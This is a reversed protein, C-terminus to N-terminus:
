KPGPIERFPRAEKYSLTTDSGVAESGRAAAPGTAKSGKAAAAVRGVARYLPRLLRKM